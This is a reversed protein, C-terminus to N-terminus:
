SLLEIPIEIPNSKLESMLSENKMLVNLSQLAKEWNPHDKRFHSPKIEKRYLIHLWALLEATAPAKDLKNDAIHRIPSFIGNIMSSLEKRSYFDEIKSEKIKGEIIKLLENDNPFDIHFYICRRLFPEPLSKESNSTIIVIPKKDIPAILREARIEPLEFSFEGDLVDLLDNPFDRSTKDIEDILVVSRTIKAKQNKAKIIAEGLASYKIIGAKVLDKPEDKLNHVYHFHRLADYRYFLDSVKSNTKSNFVLVDGLGFHKAVYFAFHTKGTGPEGTLLLPMGLELATDLAAILGVQPYYFESKLLNPVKFTPLEKKEHHQM